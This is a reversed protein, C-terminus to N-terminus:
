NKIGMMPQPSPDVRACWTDANSWQTAKARSAATPPLITQSDNPPSSAARYRESGVRPQDSTASDTAVLMSANATPM